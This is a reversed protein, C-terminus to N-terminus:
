HNFKSEKAAEGKVMHEVVNEFDMVISCHGHHNWIVLEASAGGTGQKIQETNREMFSFPVEAPTTGDTEGYLYTPCSIDGIEYPWGERSYVGKFELVLANKSNSGNLEADLFKSVFFHDSHICPPAGGTEKSFYYKYGGGSSADFGFDKTKDPHYYIGTMMKRVLWGMCGKAHFYKAGTSELKKIREKPLTKNYVECPSSIVGCGLVRNEGGNEKAHKSCHSSIMMAHVGGCSHGCVYFKSDPGLLSDLMEMVDPVSTAFDRNGTLQSSNGHGMDDIAILYVGPIPERPVLCNKGFGAGPFAVVIKSNEITGETFYAYQKGSKLNFIKEPLQERRKLYHPDWTTLPPNMPVPKKFKPLEPPAAPSIQTSM